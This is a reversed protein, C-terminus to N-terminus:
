ASYCDDVPRPSFKYSVIALSTKGFMCRVCAGLTVGPLSSITGDAASARQKGNTHQRPTVPASLANKQGQHGQGKVNSRSM